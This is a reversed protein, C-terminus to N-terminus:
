SRGGLRHFLRLLNGCGLAPTHVGVSRVCHWPSVENAPNIPPKEGSYIWDIKEARAIDSVSAYRGDEMLRRWRFARALAKLLAPDATTRAQRPTGPLVSGVPALTAGTLTTSVQTDNATAM